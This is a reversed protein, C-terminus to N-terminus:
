SRQLYRHDDGGHTMLAIPPYKPLIPNEPARPKIEKITVTPHAVPATQTQQFLDSVKPSAAPFLGNFRGEALEKLAESEEQGFLSPTTTKEGIESFTPKDMVGPGAAKELKNLLGMTWNTNQPTKIAPDFVDRDLIDARILRTEGGCNVQM